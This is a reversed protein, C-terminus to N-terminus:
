PWYYGAGRLCDIEATIAALLISFAVTCFVLRPFQEAFSAPLNQEFLRRPVDENSEQKAGGQRRRPKEDTAPTEMLDPLINCTHNLTETSM